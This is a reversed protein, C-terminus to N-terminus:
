VIGNHLFMISGLKLKQLIGTYYKNKNVNKWLFFSSILYTNKAKLIVSKLYIKQSIM